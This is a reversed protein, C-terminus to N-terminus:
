SFIGHLFWRGDALDQYIWYHSGDAHRSVWYDRPTPPAIALAAPMQPPADEGGAASSFAADDFVTEAVQYPDSRRASDTDAMFLPQATRPDATRPDAKATLGDTEPVDGQVSEFAGPAVFVRESREWWGIDIREPGRCLQLAGRLLPLGDRTSLPRPTQLLWLPRPGVPLPGTPRGGSKQPRPAVPAWAHEPRHDDALAIACCVEPGFRARLLDVLQAPDERQGGDEGLAPFLGADRAELATLRTVRLELSAIAALGDEKRERELQLRSYELMRRRDRQPTAFHVRLVQQGYRPHSLLWELRDSSLQRIRLWDELEGILRQMPFALATSHELDELFHVTSVFTEPPMVTKRPEPRRGTLMDLHALLEASTRKGLPGRPLRLLDGLTRLGMAELKDIEARPRGLHALPMHALAPRAARAVVEGWAIRLADDGRGDLDLEDALRMVDPSRGSRALAIAARPTPAIGPVASYGLGALGKLIRQQLRDLGRFLRLSGALELLLGNPPEPSVRPTFRYAWFALRQLTVAERDAERFTIMLDSCISEATSLSMGAKLGRSRAAGNLQVVTHAEVLVVPREAAGDVLSRTVIELGLRPLHLCLWLPRDTDSAM